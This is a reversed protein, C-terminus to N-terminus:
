DAGTGTEQSFSFNPRAEAGLPLGTRGAAVGEKWRNMTSPAGGGRFVYFGGGVLVKRGKQGERSENIPWVIELM